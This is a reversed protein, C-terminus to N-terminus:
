VATLVATLVATSVATLVALLQGCVSTLADAVFANGRALSVTGGLLAVCHRRAKLAPLLTAYFREVVSPLSEQGKARARSYLQYLPVTHHMWQVLGTSGGLPTIAVEPMHPAPPRAAHHSAASNVLHVLQMVAADCHLDDM